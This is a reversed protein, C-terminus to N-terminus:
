VRRRKPKPESPKSPKSLVPFLQAVTASLRGAKLDAQVKKSEAGFRQAAAKLRELGKLIAHEGIAAFSAYTIMGALLDTLIDVVVQVQWRHALDLAELATEHDLEDQVSCTYLIEVFLSVAKSSTDKVEISQAKGEKMPSALMATVVPSAAKVMHAHATVVDDATVITLNHSDKAALSKEWLEAIGEHISVRPQSTSQSSAAAFCSIVNELFEEEDQWDTVFRQERFKDQWAMVHSVASLGDCELVVRSQKREEETEGQCIWSVGSTCTQAISAGSRILWDICRLADEFKSKHLVLASDIYTVMLTKGTESRCSWDFGDLNLKKLDELPHARGLMAWLLEAQEM